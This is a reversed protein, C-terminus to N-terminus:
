AVSTYELCSANRESNRTSSLSVSKDLILIAGNNKRERDKKVMSKRIEDCKKKKSIDRMISEEDVAATVTSRVFPRNAMTGNATHFPNEGM